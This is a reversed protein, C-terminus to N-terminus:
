NYVSGTCIHDDEDWLGWLFMSHPQDHTCMTNLTFLQNKVNQPHSCTHSSINYTNTHTMLNLVHKLGLYAFTWQKKYAPYALIYWTSLNRIPAKRSLQTFEEGQLHTSCVTAAFEVGPSDPYSHCDTQTAQSGLPLAPYRYQHWPKLAPVHHPAMDQWIFLQFGYPSLCTLTHLWECPDRLIFPHLLKTAVPVAGTLVHDFVQGFVSIVSQSRIWM